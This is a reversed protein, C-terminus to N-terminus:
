AVGEDHARGDLLDVGPPRILAIPPYEVDDLGILERRALYDFDAIVAGLGAEADAAGFLRRALQRANLSGSVSERLHQLIERRRRMTAEDPIERRIM